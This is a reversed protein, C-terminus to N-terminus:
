TTVQVGFGNIGVGVGYAVRLAIRQVDSAANFALRVHVASTAVGGSYGLSLQQVHTADNTDAENGIVLIIAKRSFAFNHSFTPSSGTQAIQNSPIVQLGRYFTVRRKLYGANVTGAGVKTQDIMNALALFDDYSNKNGSAGGRILILYRPETVPVSNYADLTQAAALITADTIASGGTGVPANTSFSAYLACLNADIQDSLQKVLNRVTDNLFNQDALMEACPADGPVEVFTNVFSTPSIAAGNHATVHVATPDPGTYGGSVNTATAANSGPATTSSPQICEAAYQRVILPGMTMEQELYPAAIAAIASVLSQAQALTCTSM